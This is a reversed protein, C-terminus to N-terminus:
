PKETMSFKEIAPRHIVKKEENRKLFLNTFAPVLGRSFYGTRNKPLSKKPHAVRGLKRVLDSFFVFNNPAVATGSPSTRWERLEIYADTSTM